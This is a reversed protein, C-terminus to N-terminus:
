GNDADMINRLTEDWSQESLKMVHGAFIEGLRDHVRLLLDNWYKIIVPDGADEALVRFLAAEWTAMGYILERQDLAMLREDAMRFQEANNTERALVYLLMQNSVTKTLHLVSSLAEM